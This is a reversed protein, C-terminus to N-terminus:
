DEIARALASGMEAKRVAEDGTPASQQHPRGAQDTGGDNQFRRSEQAEVLGQPVSLIAAEERGLLPPPGPGSSGTSFENIGDDLHLLAIGGPATRADSLLNGQSEGDGDVFVHNSPNESLVVRRSLAGTTGRPQSEQAVHFVAEPTYIQEPALRGRQPGVPHQDDHILIRAADNPEADMRARDITDCETPHEVAGNSPLEPHRLVDAGVVIRKIPEVLPLGIQPYQFHCFDLGHRVNWQGM